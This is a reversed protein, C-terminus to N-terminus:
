EADSWGLRYVADAKWVADGVQGRQVELRRGPGRPLGYWANTLGYLLSFFQDEMLASSIESAPRSSGALAFLSLRGEQISPFYLRTGWLPKFDEAVRLRAHWDRVRREGSVTQLTEQLWSAGDISESSLLRKVGQEFAQTLQGQNLYFGALHGSQHDSEQRLHNLFKKIRVGVRQSKPGGSCGVAPSSETPILSLLCPRRNSWILHEGRIAWYVVFQVKFDETAFLLPDLPTDEADTPQCYSDPLNELDCLHGHLEALHEGSVDFVSENLILGSESTESLHAYPLRAFWSLFDAEDDRMGTDALSRDFFSRARSVPLDATLWGLMFKEWFPVEFRLSGAIALAGSSWVDELLSQFAHDYPDEFPVVIEGPQPIVAPPLAYSEDEVSEHTVERILAYEQMWSDFHALAQNMKGSDLWFSIDVRQLPFQTQAGRGASPEMWIGGSANERASRLFYFDAPRATALWGLFGFIVPFIPLLLLFIIRMKKNTKV